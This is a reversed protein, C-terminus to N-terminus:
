LLPESATCPERSRAWGAKHEQREFIKLGAAIVKLNERTDAALYERLGNTLMYIRKPRTNDATRTVANKHLPLKERDIGYVSCISDIVKPDSVPLM